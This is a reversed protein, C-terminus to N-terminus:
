ERTLTHFHIFNLGKFIVYFKKKRDLAGSKQFLM